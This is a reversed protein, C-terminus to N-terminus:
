YYKLNYFLPLQGYNLQLHKARYLDLFDINMRFFSQGKDKKPVIDFIVLNNSEELFGCRMGNNYNPYADEKKVQGSKMWCTGGDFDTWAYHTCLSNLVCAHVCDQSKSRASEFHADPFDCAIAWTSNADINWHIKLDVSPLPQSM